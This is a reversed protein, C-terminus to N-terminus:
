RLPVTQSARLTFLGEFANLFQQHIQFDFVLYHLSFYCGKLCFFDLLLVVNCVEAVLNLSELALALDAFLFYHLQTVITFFGDCFGEQKSRLDDFFFM